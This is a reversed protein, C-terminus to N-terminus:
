LIKDIYESLIINNITLPNCYVNLATPEKLIQKINKNLKINNYKDISFLLSRLELCLININSKIIYIAHEFRKEICKVFYALCVDNSECKNHNLFGNLLVILRKQNEMSLLGLIQKNDIM